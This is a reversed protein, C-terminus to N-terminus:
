WKLSPDHFSKPRHTASVVAGAPNVSQAAAKTKLEDLAGTQAKAEILRKRVDRAAKGIAKDIPLHAFRETIVKNVEVLLATSAEAKPDTIDLTDFVDAMVDDVAAVVQRQTEVAKKEAEARQTETRRQDSEQKLPSIKEDVLHQVIAMMKKASFSTDVVQGQENRVELDPELDVKPAGRMGGLIRAAESRLQPGWQPHSGVEAVLDRIHAIPDASIQQVKQVMSDLTARPIQEAWGFDQKYTALAEDAAKTRANKLATEHVDFPIPGKKEPAPTISQTETPAPPATAAADGNDTPSPTQLAADSAFAQAM